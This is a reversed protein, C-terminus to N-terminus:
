LPACHPSMRKGSGGKWKENGLEWKGSVPVLEWNGCDGINALIRFCKLFGVPRTSCATLLLALPPWYEFVNLFDPLCLSNARATLSFM